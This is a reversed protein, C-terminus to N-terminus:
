LLAVRVSVMVPLAACFLKVKAWALKTSLEPTKCVVQWFGHQAKVATQDAAQAPGPGGSMGLMAALAIALGCARGTRPWVGM